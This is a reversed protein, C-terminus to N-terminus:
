LGESTMVEFSGCHVSTFYLYFLVSIACTLAFRYIFVIIDAFSNLNHHKVGSEAINLSTTATLKIPPPFLLIRSSLWRGAALWQCVKDCLTTDLVNRRLPIRVWSTLPSLCGDTYSFIKKKFTAFVHHKTELPAEKKKFWFVM